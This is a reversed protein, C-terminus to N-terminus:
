EKARQALERAWSRIEDWNRLDYVVSEVEKFGNKQLQLKFGVEMFKRTLFSMKNYDLIGDFFGVTIPKFYYKLIKDELWVKRIKAFLGTKGEKEEVTKLSSIFLTLKKNEFNKQFKKLFDETESRWHGMEMGSDVVVLNYESIDPIREEKLNSLKVDFGEDDLIKMIEEATGATAGFCTGYAILTKLNAPSKNNEENRKMKERPITSLSAVTMLKIKCFHTTTFM